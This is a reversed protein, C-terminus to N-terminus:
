EITALLKKFYVALACISLLELINIDLAVFFYFQTLSTLYCALVNRCKLTSGTKIDLDSLYTFLFLNTEIYKSFKEQKYIQNSQAHLISSVLSM